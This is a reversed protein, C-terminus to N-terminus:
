GKKYLKEIDTFLTQRVTKNSFKKKDLEDQRDLAKIIMEVTDHRECYCRVGYIIICLEMFTFIHDLYKSDSQVIRNWTERIEILNLYTYRQINTIKAKKYYLFHIISSLESFSVCGGSRQINGNLLFMPDNNLRETIINSQSFMNMSDSDIKKMQTKQDEQFIFTKMKDESFNTIRLEMPYNWDPNEDRVQGMAVYRHYGDTIDFMDLKTIVLENTKDDYYFENDRDLPLNLTITNSIFRGTEFAEKINKVAGKNLSIKYYKHEGRVVMDMNRQTNKNYNIKQNERLEMLFNVDTSGIYSDETVKICHIRIPYHLQKQDPLVTESYRKIEEKTFYDEVLNKNIYYTLCFLEFDNAEEISVRGVVLDSIRGIPINHNKNITFCLEQLKSNKLAYNMTMDKELYKKLYEVGTKM